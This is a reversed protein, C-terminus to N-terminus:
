YDLGAFERLIDNPTACPFINKAMNIVARRYQRLCKRVSSSDLYAKYEHYGGTNGTWKTGQVVVRGRRGDKRVELYSICNDYIEAQYPETTVIRQYTSM